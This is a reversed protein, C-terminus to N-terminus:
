AAGAILLLLVWVIRGVIRGRGSVPPLWRTTAGSARSRLSAADSM